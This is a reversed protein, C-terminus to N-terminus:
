TAMLRPTRPGVIVARDGGTSGADEGEHVGLAQEIEALGLDHDRLRSAFIMGIEMAAIALM